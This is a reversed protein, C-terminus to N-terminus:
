PLLMYLSEKHNTLYLVKLNGRMNMDVSNLTNSFLHVPKIESTSGRSAQHFLLDLAARFIRFVNHRGIISNMAMSDSM